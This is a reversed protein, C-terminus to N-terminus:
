VDVKDKSYIKMRLRAMNIPGTRNRIALTSRPMCGAAAETHRAVLAVHLSIEEKKETKCYM